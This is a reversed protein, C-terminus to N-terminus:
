TLVALSYMYLPLIINDNQSSFAELLGTLFVVFTYARWDIQTKFADTHNEQQLGIFTGTQLLLFSSFLVIIVFAVTGEVTKNSGLWRNRGLKKGIISAASDGFGLALIGSLSALFNSSGIWIPSACGLLLYMHSLIIPGLDRNDIFETLFIHLNKGWPWVAFYRLYELYIFASMAVGFALQLFQYEFIVGPVFLVVALAHFLKRKINLSATLNKEETNLSRHSQSPSAFDLVLVWIVITCMFPDMGIAEKCFPSIMFLILVATTLYFATGLLLKQNKFIPLSKDHSRWYPQQAIRRSQRLLPYTIVGILIMGIILAHILVSISSMDQHDMYEPQYKPFYTVCIYEVTGYVLVAASQSIITMEGLTFCKQLTLIIRKLPRVYENVFVLTLLTVSMIFLLELRAQVYVVFAEDTSNKMLDTMKSATVMPLLLVGCLLGDDANNRFSSKNAGFIRNLPVLSVITTPKLLKDGDYINNADTHQEDSSSHEQVQDPAQFKLKSSHQLFLCVGLFFVRGMFRTRISTISAAESVAYSSRKRRLVQFTQDEDISSSSAFGEDADHGASNTSSSPPSHYDKIINNHASDALYHEQLPEIIHSLSEGSMIQELEYLTLNIRHDTVRNQPYNYTRIKESRDGTGIQKNRSDRRSKETKIREQEYIKARLVKLAKQKNKHQSREDQMAVVLGTPIHTIRVASDTTNVHQGGAGSARYVDIKLDSDRIQVQVETPQPLIAVTVTSTHIRGQSETAPVRQVRHVGSEYKLTGFVSKGGVNVTIDKFGKSGTEESCALVEWKWRQLQSFREYMRAMDASFISAEDGGAGARIELIASTDDAIDKPALEMIIEKELQKIQNSMDQCEEKALDFMEKDSEEPSSLMDYLERLDSKSKQWQDFLAKSQTLSALERSNNTIESPDLNDSNNLRTIITDHRESLRTLKNELAPTIRSTELPQVKTSYRAIPGFVRKLM